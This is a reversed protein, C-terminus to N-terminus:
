SIMKKDHLSYRTDITEVNKNDIFCKLRKSTVILSNAIM